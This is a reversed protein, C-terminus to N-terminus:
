SKNQLTAHIHQNDAYGTLVVTDATDDYSMYPGKEFHNALDSWQAGRVTMTGGSDIGFEVHVAPHHNITISAQGIRQCQANLGTHLVTFSAHVHYIGFLLSQSGTYTGKLTRLSTPCLKTASPATVTFDTVAPGGAPAPSGSPRAQGRSWLVILVVVVALVAVVMQM